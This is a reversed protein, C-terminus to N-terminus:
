RNVSYCLDLILSYERCVDSRKISAEFVQNIFAQIRAVVLYISLNKERANNSFLGVSILKSPEEMQSFHLVVMGAIKLLFRNVAEPEVMDYNNIIINLEKQVAVALEYHSTISKLNHKKIQFLVSNLFTEEFEMEKLFDIVAEVSM